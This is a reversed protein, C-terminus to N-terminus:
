PWPLRPSSTRVYQADQTLHGDPLSGGCCQKTWPVVHIVMEDGDYVPWNESLVRLARGYSAVMEDVPNLNLARIGEIRAVAERM